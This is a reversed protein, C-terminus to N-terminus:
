KDPSELQIAIDNTALELKNFFTNRSTNAFVISERDDFERSTDQHMTYLPRM